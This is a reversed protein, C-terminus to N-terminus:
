PGGINANHVKGARPVRKTIGTSSRWTPRWPLGTLHEFSAAFADLNTISPHRKEITEYTAQMVARGFASREIKDDFKGSIADIYHNMYSDIETPLLTGDLDFLVTRTTDESLM